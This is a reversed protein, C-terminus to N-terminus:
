AKEKARDLISQACKALSTPNGKPTKDKSLCYIFDHAAQWLAEKEKLTVLPLTPKLLLRGSDWDFGYRASEITVASSFGMSPDTTCIVVETEDDSKCSNRENHTLFKKLDSVKM